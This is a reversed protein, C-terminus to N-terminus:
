GGLEKGEQRRMPENVARGRRGMGGGSRSGRGAPQVALARELVRAVVHRADFQEALQRALRSHREYDSEAAFLARAAEELSRFRFLGAADPLFRSRGTHQVVAPKGSALYCLTRDSIWANALTMCAPKACSFEGRSHQIYARYQEPTASVEWAERINWGLPELLTRWQEHHDVLCVALELRVPTRSPLEKYELFSVHKEENITRGRFEFTSGWWHTVTTYPATSDVPTPPWEPLFVPPPTYHWRLGCDPFRAAPTGVTEGITFYIHHRPLHVDGRTMWIQLLGPDTDVFASRRFRSVVSAPLAHSLNLLLDAEAAAELDLARGALDRALPEGHLSFLAVSQALGYPELRSKLTSVQQGPDHERDRPDVGELWVVRFGLARLGLAWQLYVWLHGGGQLYALTRAPALCIAISM